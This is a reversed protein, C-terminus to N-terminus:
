LLCARHFGRSSQRVAIPRMPWAAAIRDEVLSGDLWAIGWPRFRDHPGAYIDDAALPTFVDESGWALYGADIQVAIEELQGMAEEGVWAWSAAGRACRFVTIVSSLSGDSTSGSAHIVLSTVATAASFVNLSVDELSHSYGSIRGTSNREVRQLLEELGDGDNVESYVDWEDDVNRVQGYWRPSISGGASVIARAARQVVDVPTAAVPGFAVFLDPKM